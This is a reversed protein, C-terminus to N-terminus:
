EEKRYPSNWKEEDITCIGDELVVERGHFEMNGIYDTYGVVKTEVDPFVVKIMDGVTAGEPIIIIRELDKEKLTGKHVLNKLRCLLSM